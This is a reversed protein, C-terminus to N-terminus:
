RAQRRGLESGFLRIVSSALNGILESDEVVEVNEDGGDNGHALSKDMLMTLDEAMLAEQAQLLTCEYLARQLAVVAEHADAVSGDFEIAGDLCGSSALCYSAVAEFDAPTRLPSPKTTMLGLWCTAYAFSM